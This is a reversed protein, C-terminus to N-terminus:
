KRKATNPKSATKTQPKPAPKPTPKPQAEKIQEIMTEVTTDPVISVESICETIFRGEGDRGIIRHTLRIGRIDETITDGIKMNNDINM